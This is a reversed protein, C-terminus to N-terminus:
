APKKVPADMKTLLDKAAKKQTETKSVELVKNLSTKALDKNTLWSEKAIKLAAACAESVLAEDSLFPVVVELAKADKLEGLGGLVMKKEDNRKAAALADQYLKVTEPAPRKSPLGVLRVYARLSLIALTNSKEEKALMLLQDLPTTDPWATLARVGAEHTKEDTSKVADRIAALAKDGGLQGMANLLTAKVAGEAREFEALLPAIRADANDNKRAIAVVAKAAQDRDVDEKAEVLLALARPLADFDAVLALSKFAEGRIAFDADSAATFLPAVAAPTRRAGVARIAETRQPVPGAAIREILADDVAKGALMELTNRAAVQEEGKAAASKLLAPVASADGLRALMTLALIRLTEDADSAAELIAKKARKDNQGALARLLWPKASADAKALRGVIENALAPDHRHGLAQLAAGRAQPDIDALVNLLKAGDEDSGAIGIGIIAAYRYRQPSFLYERYIKVAAPRQDLTILRDALLLYADNAAAKAADSGIDRAAALVPAASADGVHALAILAPMRVADDTSAAAKAFVAADASNRRHALAIILAGKWTADDASEIATRLADAASATPNSSLARCAADRVLADKDNLAAAVASITEERGIRQIHRLLHVKVPVSANATLTSALVKSLAAREIEAGPRSAHFCIKQLAIDDSEPKTLLSPLVKAYTAEFEAASKAAPTGEGGLAKVIPDIPPADAAFSCGAFLFAAGIAAIRLRNMLEIMMM